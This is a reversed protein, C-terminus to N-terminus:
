CDVGRFLRSLGRRFFNKADLPEPETAGAGGAKDENEIAPFTHGNSWQRFVLIALVFANL